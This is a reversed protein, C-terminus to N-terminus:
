LPQESFCKRAALALWDTTDRPGVQSRPDGLVRQIDEPRYQGTKAFHAHMDSVWQPPESRAEQAPRVPGKKGMGGM